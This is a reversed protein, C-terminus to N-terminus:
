CAWGVQWRGAISAVALSGLPELIFYQALLCSTVTALIGPRVGGVFASLMIPIAFVMLSPYGGLSDRLLLLVLVTLGPGILALLWTQWPRLGGVGRHQDNESSPRTEVSALGSM